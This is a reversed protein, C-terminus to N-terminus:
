RKFFKPRLHPHAPTDASPRGYGRERTVLEERRLRNGEDLHKFAADFDKRHKDLAYLAFQLRRRNRPHTAANDALAVARARLDDNVTEPFQTLLVAMADSSDPALAIVRQWAAQADAPRGMIQAYRAAAIWIEVSDPALKQAEALLREAEREKGIMALVGAYRIMRAPNGPDLELARKFANAAARQQRNTELYAEGLLTFYDARDPVLECARELPAVPDGRSLLRRCQGVEVLMEPVDPALAYGREAM